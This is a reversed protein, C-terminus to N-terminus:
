WRLPWGWGSILILWAWWPAGKKDGGSTCDMDDWSEPFVMGDPIEAVLTMTPDNNQLGIVGVAIRAGSNGSPDCDLGDGHDRGEHLVIARGVWARLDSVDAIFLQYWGDLYGSVM